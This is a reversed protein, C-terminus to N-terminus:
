QWYRAIAFVSPTNSYDSSRAVVVIKRDKTLTLSSALAFAVGPVTTRVEGNNGFTTDRSGDKDFRVVVITGPAGPALGSVIIKEDDQVGLGTGTLGIADNAIGDVIGAANLRRLRTGGVAISSGDPRVVVRASTDLEPVTKTTAGLADLSVRSSKGQSLGIAEAKGPLIAIDEFGNGEDIPNNPAYAPARDTGDDKLRLLAREANGGSGLSGGAAIIDTQYFGLASIRSRPQPANVLAITRSGTGNFTVDASGNPTLRAVFAHLPLGQEGGVVIKGDPAFAIAHLMAGQPQLAIFNGDFSPDPDGRETFRAFIPVPPAVRRFGAVIIRHQDDTVAGELYPPATEAFPNRVLGKDGFAEDITGMAGRVFLPLAVEEVITGDESTGEVALTKPGISAARDVDLEVTTSTADATIPLPATTVGLPLGKMALRVAGTFGGARAVTVKFAGKTGASIAVDAPEVTLAFTATGPGGEGGDSQGNSAPSGPAADEGVCAVFASSLALIGLVFAGWRRCSRMRM